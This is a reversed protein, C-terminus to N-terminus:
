AAGRPSPAEPCLGEYHPGLAVEFDVVRASSLGPALGFGATEITLELSYGCRRCRAAITVRGRHSEVVGLEVAPRALSSVSM